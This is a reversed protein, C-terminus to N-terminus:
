LNLDDKMQAQQQEEIVDDRLGENTSSKNQLRGGGSGGPITPGGTPSAEPTITFVGVCCHHLSMVLASKLCKAM